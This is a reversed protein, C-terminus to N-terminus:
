HRQRRLQHGGPGHDGARQGRHQQQHRLDPRHGRGPQREPDLLEAVNAPTTGATLSTLPLSGPSGTTAGGSTSTTVALDYCFPVGKIASFYNGDTSGDTEWSPAPQTITLTWTGSTANPAGNAGGMALFTAHYTGNDAYVPNDAVPCTLIYEETM